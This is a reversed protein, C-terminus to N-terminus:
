IKKQFFILDFPQLIKISHRVSEKDLKEFEKNQLFYKKSFLYKKKGFNNKKEFNLAIPSLSAPFKLNGPTRTPVLFIIVLVLSCKVFHADVHEM